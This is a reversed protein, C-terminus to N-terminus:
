AVIGSDLLVSALTASQGECLLVKQLSPLFHELALLGHVLLLFAALFVIEFPPEAGVLLCLLLTKGLTSKELRGM